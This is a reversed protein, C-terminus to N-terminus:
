TSTRQDNWWYNVLFNFDSLSEVHHWWPSPIYIADGPNLEVSMAHQYAIEYKPHKELDPNHLDVLSIPQGAPTKEVPGVYLNEIQDPPFLTFRRRGVAAVAINQAEDFHPAVKMKSGFWVYGVGKENILPHTHQSALAPFAKKLPICQFCANPQEPNELGQAMLKLGDIISTPQLQFNFKTLDDADYFMRNNHSKDLRVMNFTGTGANRMLYALADRDSKLAEQVLPWDNAFGRMVVPSYLDAVEGEFNSKSINSVEPPSPLRDLELM